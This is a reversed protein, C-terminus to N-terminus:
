QWGQRWKQSDKLSQPTIEFQNKTMVAELTCSLVKQSEEDELCAVVIFHKQKDVPNLATWKSLMLKKTQFRNM